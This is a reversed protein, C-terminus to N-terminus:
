TEGSASPEDLSSRRLSQCVTESPVQNKKPIATTAHSADGNEKQFHSEKVVALSGDHISKLESILSVLAKLAALSVQVQDSTRMLACFSDDFMWQPIDYSKCDPTALLRCRFTSVGRRTMSSEISVRHRFWPHWRYLVTSETVHANPHSTTCDPAAAYIM